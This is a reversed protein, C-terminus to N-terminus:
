VCARMRITKRPVGAKATAGSSASARAPGRSRRRDDRLRIPRRPAPLREALGRRLAPRARLADRHQLRLLDAVARERALEGREPGVEEGHGRVAPDEALVEELERRVARHVHVARQQRLIAARRGDLPRDRLPLRLGADRDHLHVLPEVRAVHEQLADKAM